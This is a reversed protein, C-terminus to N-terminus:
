YFEVIGSAAKKRRKKGIKREPDGALVARRTEFDELDKVDILYRPRGRQSTAANIARLEGSRIWTLVKDASVGWLKAVEPPTLKKRNTDIM